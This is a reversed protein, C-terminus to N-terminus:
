FREVAEVLAQAMAPHSSAHGAHALLRLRASPWARALAQATAPPTVQDLRGQVIVGPIGYLRHAQTLLQGEALFANRRAYHVGICAHELLKADGPPPPTSDGGEHQMLAQEWQWWARAAALGVRALRAHLADLLGAGDPTGATSCLAQWAERAQPLRSPPCSFPLPHM